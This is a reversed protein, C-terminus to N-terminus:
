GNNPEEVFQGIKSDQIKNKDGIQISNDTYIIQIIKNEIRTITESGKSEPEIDLEDLVGFEKELLLLIDLIKNDLATLVNIFDAKSVAVYASLISSINSSRMLTHFTYDPLPKVLQNSDEKQAAVIISGISQKIEIQEFLKREEYNLSTLPIPYNEYKMSGVIFTGIVQGIAIRYVPVTEKESYGNLEFNIWTLIEPKSFDSLLVKLRKLSVAVDINGNAIDKIIQSRPM